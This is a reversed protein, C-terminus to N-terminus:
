LPREPQTAFAQPYERAYWDAVQAHDLSMFEKFRPVRTLMLASGGAFLGCAIYVTSLSAHHLAWGVLAPGLSSGLSSLTFSVATLRTRYALPRALMRHSLGTLVLASNALGCAFFALPLLWPWGSAGVVALLL